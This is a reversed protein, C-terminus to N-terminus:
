VGLDSLVDAKNPKGTKSDGPPELLQPQGPLLWQFAPRLCLVRLM